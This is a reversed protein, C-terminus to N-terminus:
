HVRPHTIEAKEYHDGIHGDRIFDRMMEFYGAAFRTSVRAGDPNLEYETL